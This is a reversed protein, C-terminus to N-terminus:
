QIRIKYLLKQRAGFAALTHLHTLNGYLAFSLKHSIGLKDSHVSTHPYAVETFSGFSESQAIGNEM